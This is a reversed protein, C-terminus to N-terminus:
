SSLGKLIKIAAVLLSANAIEVLMFFAAPYLAMSRTILADIVRGGAMGFLSFAIAWVIGIGFPPKQTVVFVLMGAVTVGYGGYVARVENRAAPQVLREGFIGWLRAPWALAFLGMGFFFAAVGLILVNAM